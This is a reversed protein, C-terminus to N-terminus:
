FVQTQPLFYRRQKIKYFPKKWFNHLMFGHTARVTFSCNYYIFKLWFFFLCFENQKNVFWKFTKVVMKLILIVEFCKRKVWIYVLHKAWIYGLHKAWIYGLHKAWIYGLHKAWIYGPHKAWIYGLHKAWIYVLHKAWINYILLCITFM